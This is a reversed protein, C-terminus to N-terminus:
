LKIPPYVDPTSALQPHNCVWVNLSDLCFCSKQECKHDSHYFICYIDAAVSSDVVTMVKYQQTSLRLAAYDALIM